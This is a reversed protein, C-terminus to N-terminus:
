NLYGKDIEEVRDTDKLIGLDVAEKILQSPLAREEVRGYAETKYVVKYSEIGWEFEVTDEILGSFDLYEVGLRWDTHSDCRDLKTHQLRHKENKSFLMAEKVEALWNRTEESLAAYEEITLPKVKVHSDFATRYDHGVGMTILQGAKNKGLTLYVEGNVKVPKFLLDEERNKIVEKQKSKVYKRLEQESAVKSLEEFLYGELPDLVHKDERNLLVGVAEATLVAKELINM